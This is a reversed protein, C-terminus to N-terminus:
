GGGFFFNGAAQMAFQASSFKHQNAEPAMWWPAASLWPDSALVGQLPILTLLLLFVHPSVRMMM